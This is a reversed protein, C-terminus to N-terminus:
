AEATLLAQQFACVGASESPWLWRRSGIGTGDAPVTGCDEGSGSGWAGYCAFRGARRLGSLQELVSTERARAQSALDERGAALAQEREGALRAAQNDLQNVHLEIRKRSTAVDTM